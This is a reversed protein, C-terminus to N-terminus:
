FLSDRQNNRQQLTKKKPKRQARPMGGGIYGGGGFLYRPEPAISIGQPERFDIGRIAPPPGRTKVAPRRLYAINDQHMSARERNPPPGMFFDYTSRGTELASSAARGVRSETVSESIKQAAKVPRSNSVIDAARWALPRKPPPSKWDSVNQGFIGSDRYPQTEPEKNSVTTFEADITRDNAYSKRSDASETAMYPVVDTGTGLEHRRRFRSEEQSKVETHAQTVHTEAPHTRYYYEAESEYDQSM